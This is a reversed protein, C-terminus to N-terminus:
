IEQAKEGGTPELNQGGRVVPGEGPAWVADTDLDAASAPIFHRKLPKGLYVTEYLTYGVYLVIYLAVGIYTAVVNQQLV